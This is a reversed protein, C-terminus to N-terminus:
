LEDGMVPWWDSIVWWNYSIAWWGNGDIVWWEDIMVWWGNGLMLWADSM